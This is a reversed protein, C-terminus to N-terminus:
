QLSSIIANNTIRDFYVIFHTSQEVGKKKTERPKSPGSNLQNLSPTPKKASKSSNASAEFSRDRVAFVQKSWMM